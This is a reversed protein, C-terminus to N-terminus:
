ETTVPIQRPKVEPRKPLSVKLVGDKMTAKVKEGDIEDPMTFSRSFQYARRERRLPSYGEPVETKRTGSLTLVGRHVELKIDAETLGPLDVTIEYGADRNATRVDPQTVSYPRREFERFIRDFDSFMRGFAPFGAFDDYNRNLLGTM